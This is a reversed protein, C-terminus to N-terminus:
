KYMFNLFSLMCDSSRIVNPKTPEIPSKVKASLRGRQQDSDFLYVLPTRYMSICSIHQKMYFAKSYRISKSQKIHRCKYSQNTQM